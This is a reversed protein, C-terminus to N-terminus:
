RSGKAAPDERPRWCGNEHGHAVQCDNRGRLVDALGSTKPTPYPAQSGQPSISESMDLHICASAWFCMNFLAQELVRTLSERRGRGKSVSKYMPSHLPCTLTASPALSILRWWAPRGDAYQFLRFRWPRCWQQQNLYYREPSSMQQPPSTLM